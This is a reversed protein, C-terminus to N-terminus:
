GAHMNVFSVESIGEFYAVYIEFAPSNDCSSVELVTYIGEVVDIVALGVLTPISLKAAVHVAIAGGM